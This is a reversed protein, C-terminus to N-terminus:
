PSPNQCFPCGGTPFIKFKLDESVQNRGNQPLTLMNKVQNHVKQM